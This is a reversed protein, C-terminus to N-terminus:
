TWMDTSRFAWSLHAGEPVGAPPQGLEGVTPGVREAAQLLVAEDMGYCAIANAGLVLRM